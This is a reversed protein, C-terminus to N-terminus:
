GWGAWKQEGRRGWRQKGVRLLPAMWTSHSGWGGWLAHGKGVAGDDFSSCGLGISRRGSVTGSTPGAAAQLRRPTVTQCMALDGGPPQESPPGDM